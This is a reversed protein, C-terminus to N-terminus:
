ASEVEAVIEREREKPKIDTLGSFLFLLRRDTVVLLGARMGRSAEAMTLPQEDQVDPLLSLETEVVWRRKLKEDALV